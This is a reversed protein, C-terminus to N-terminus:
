QVKLLYEDSILGKLEHHQDLMGAEVMIRSLMGASQGLLPQEGSLLKLNNAYDPLVLGHFVGSVENYPLGLRPSLRYLADQRNTSFHEMAKFHAKLLHSIAEKNNLADNRIALVDVILNPAESSSFIETAGQAQLISSVPEYTIVANVTDDQWAGVHQDVPLDLVEIDKATIGAKKLLQDLMISGVAGIEVGIRKGKIAKLTTIATKSLIM